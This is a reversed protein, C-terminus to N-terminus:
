TAYGVKVDEDFRIRNGFPDIVRDDSLIDYRSGPRMRLIGAREEGPSRIGVGQRGGPVPIGQDRSFSRGSSGRHSSGSEGQEDGSMMVVPPRPRAWSAPRGGLAVIM